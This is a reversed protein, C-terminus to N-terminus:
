LETATVPYRTGALWSGCGACQARSFDDCEDLDGPVVYAHDLGPFAALGDPHDTCDCVCRDNNAVMVLCCGCVRLDHTEPEAVPEPEVIWGGGPTEEAPNARHADAMGDAAHKAAYYWSRWDCTLCRARWPYGRNADHEIVVNHTPEPETPFMAVRDADALQDPRFYGRVLDRSDADLYRALGQAVDRRVTRLTYKARGAASDAYGDYWADPENRMDARDLAGESGREAANWGRLYAATYSPGTPELHGIMPAYTTSM